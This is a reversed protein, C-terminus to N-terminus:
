EELGLDAFADARDLYVVHRIVRGDRFQYLAAVKWQAADLEVGSVKGRGSGYGLVLVREDDLPRVEEVVTRHEDWVSFLEGAARAMAARGKWSGPMPGGVIVYEVDPHAWEASRYDGREHAASISRVLDVDEQSV